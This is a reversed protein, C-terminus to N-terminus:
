DMAQSWLIVGSLSAYLSVCASFMDTICACSGYFVCVCVCICICIITQLIDILVGDM